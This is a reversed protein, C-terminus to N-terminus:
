LYQSKDIEGKQPNFFSILEYKKRKPYSVKSYTFNGNYLKDEFGFCLGEHNKAYHSWMLINKKNRSLCLIWVEEDLYSDIESFERYKYTFVNFSRNKIIKYNIEWGFVWKGV